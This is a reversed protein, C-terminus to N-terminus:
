CCVELRVRLNAASSDCLKVATKKSKKKTKQKKHSGHLLLIYCMSSQSFMVDHVHVLLCNPRSKTAYLM